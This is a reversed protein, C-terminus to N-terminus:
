QNARIGNGCTCVEGNPLTGINNCSPTNTCDGPTDAVSRAPRHKWGPTAKNKDKAM